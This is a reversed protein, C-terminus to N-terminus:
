SSPLPPLEEGCCLSKLQMDQTDVVLFTTLARDDILGFTIFKALKPFQVLILSITRAVAPIPQNQRFSGAQYSWFATAKIHVAIDVIPEVVIRRNLIHHSLVEEFSNEGYRLTMRIKFHKCGSPNNDIGSGVGM